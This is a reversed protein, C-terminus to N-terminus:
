KKRKRRGEFHAIAQTIKQYPLGQLDNFEMKAQQVCQFINVQLTSVMPTSTLAQQLGLIGGCQVKIERAHPLPGSVQTLGLAFASNKRLLKLLRDCEHQAVPDCCGAAEREAINIRKLKECQFRRTLIAKEFVCRLENVSNYVDKYEEEDM